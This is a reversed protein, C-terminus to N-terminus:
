QVTVSGKAEVTTGQKVQFDYAGPQLTGLPQTNGYCNFPRGDAPEEHDLIPIGDKVINLVIAKTGDMQEALHAAFFFPQTSRLVTTPNAV